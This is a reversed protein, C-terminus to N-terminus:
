IINLPTMDVSQYIYFNLYIGDTSDEPLPTGLGDLLTPSVKPEGDKDRIRVAKKQSDVTVLQYYGEDLVQRVWGGVKCKFTYSVQWFYVGSEAQKTATVSSFLVEGVDYGIFPLLNVKNKYSSDLPRPDFLLENRTVTLVRITEERTLPPDFKERASNVVPIQVAGIPDAPNFARDLVAEYVEEGWSYVAPRLLPNEINDPNTAASPPLKSSYNCTVIFVWEFDDGDIQDVTKSRMTAASDENHAEGKIPIGTADRALLPGDGKQCIVRFRRVYSSEPSDDVKGTRGDHIEQVSQVAM